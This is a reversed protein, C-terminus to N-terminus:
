LNEKGNKRSSRRQRLWLLIGAIIAVWVLVACLMTSSPECNAGSILTMTNSDFIFEEPVAASITGDLLKFSKTGNINFERSV